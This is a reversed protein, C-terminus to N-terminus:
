HLGFLEKILYGGMFYPEVDCPFAVALVVIILIAGTTFIFCFQSFGPATRKRRLFWTMFVAYPITLAFTVPVAVLFFLGGQLGIPIRLWDWYVVKLLFCIGAAFATLSLIIATVLIAWSQTAARM